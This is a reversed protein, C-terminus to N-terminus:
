TESILLQATRTREVYCPECLLHITLDKNIRSRIPGVRLVQVDPNVIRGCRCCHNNLSHPCTPCKVAGLWGNRLITGYIWTRIRARSMCVHGLLRNTMARRVSRIQIPLGQSRFHKTTGVSILRLDLRSKFHESLCPYTLDRLRLAHSSADKFASVTAHVFYHFITVPAENADSISLAEVLQKLIVCPFIEWFQRIHKSRYLANRSL